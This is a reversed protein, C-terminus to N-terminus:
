DRKTMLFLIRASGEIPQSERLIFDKEFAKTFGEITYHPFIDERTSLLRQVQSDNKPPFEIILSQGASAFFKSLLPLPVNNGIALHHILALAFVVDAPGRSLLSEREANHWGISPSPNTLDQILALQYCDKQKASALFNKEVALPDIDFAVTNIGNSSAIRSFFGTNAGLDWVSKPKLMGLFKEVINAKELMAEDSYNTADYYNGWETDGHKWRLKQVASRLSDVIGLMGTRSVTSRRFNKTAKEINKGADDAHRVQSKAHLHIHFLLGSNLKTSKPLQRSALDLPIGDIFTRLWQHYRVDCYAMLALPALFHKSFQQYASWPEGNRYSAFSLTDILLPESGIFQINYASADKLVMDYKLAIENIHLTTLAAAKLASFCWEYPYSIFPIHDPRIIKYSIEPHEPRVDVEQHPVLFGKGVLETYLGSTMLRDYDDKYCTNIQRYLVGDRSFMFGSPDRFSARLIM